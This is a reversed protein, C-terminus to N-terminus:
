KTGKAQTSPNRSKRGRSVAQLIGQKERAMSEFIGAEKPPSGFKANIREMLNDLESDPYEKSGKTGDALEWTVLIVPIGEHLTAACVGQLAM